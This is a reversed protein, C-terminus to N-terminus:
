RERKRGRDEDVGRWLQVIVLAHFAFGIRTRVFLSCLWARTWRAVACSISPMLHEDTGIWLGMECGKGSEVGADALQLLQVRRIANSEMGYM